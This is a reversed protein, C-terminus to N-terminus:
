YREGIAPLGPNIGTMAVSIDWLRRALAPDEAQPARRAEGAVGRIGCFGTPGYYGGPKVPGTAALLAPWAGKAASNLLLGVLPGMVQIPGMHRGLSTSAVGPHAGVAVIPSRTARLRRDLEFFFLANALKSAGYRDGKSYSREANLDDWDLTAKLHAISSTVVVRSGPTEALKPLLLSTLAFVGLHNVGFQSEFGQKTRMLPPNMIGANNILVNIRPEKLVHAAAARVSDLDGLDLPLWALDAGPTLRKIRAIAADARGQERCGLLVRAGRAALVRSIEFGVGANAGTVIFCKGAQNPVDTETFGSQDLLM